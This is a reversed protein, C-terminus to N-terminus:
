GVGGDTLRGRAPLRRSGDQLPAVRGVGPDRPGQSCYVKGFLSLQYVLLVVYLSALIPIFYGLRFRTGFLRYYKLVLFVALGLATLLYKGGLFWMPGRGILYAMFPNTEECSLDLLLLTLVGDTLTFVLVLIVLLATRPGHRDVIPYPQIELDISRRLASRRGPTMFVDWYRTPRLRREPFDRNM